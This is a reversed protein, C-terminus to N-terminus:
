RRTGAREESTSHPYLHVLTAGEPMITTVEPPLRGPILLSCTKIRVRSPSHGAYTNVRWSGPRARRRDEVHVAETEPRGNELHALPQGVVAIHHQHGIQEVSGAGVLRQFGLLDEGGAVNSRREAVQEGRRVVTLNPSSM